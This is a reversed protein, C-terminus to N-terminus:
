GSSSVLLFAFSCHFNFPSFPLIFAPFLLFICIRIGSKKEAARRGLRDLIYWFPQSGLLCLGALFRASGCFSRKPKNAPWGSTAPLWDGRSGRGNVHCAIPTSGIFVPSGAIFVEFVVADFLIGLSGSM